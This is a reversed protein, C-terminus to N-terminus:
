SSSSDSDSSPPPVPADPYLTAHYRSRVRWGNQNHYGFTMAAYARYEPETWRKGNNIIVYEEQLQYWVENPILWIDQWHEDGSLVSTPSTIQRRATLYYSAQNTMNFRFDFCEWVRLMRDHLFNEGARGWMRAISEIPQDASAMFSALEATAGMARAQFYAIRVYVDVPAQSIHATARRREARPGEGHDPRPDFMYRWDGEMLRQLDETLLRGLCRMHQELLGLSIKDRNTWMPAVPSDRLMRYIERSVAHLGPVQDYHYWFNELGRPM